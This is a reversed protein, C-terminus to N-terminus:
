AALLRPMRHRLSQQRLHWGTVARAKEAALIPFFLQPFETQWALAEAENVALDLLYQHEDLRGRFEAVVQAKVSQIQALLKRCSAMCRGGFNMQPNIDRGSVEEIKTNMNM